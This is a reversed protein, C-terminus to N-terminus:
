KLLGNDSLRELTDALLTASYSTNLEIIYSFLANIDVNGDFDTIEDMKSDIEEQTFFKSQVHNVSEIVIDEYKSM